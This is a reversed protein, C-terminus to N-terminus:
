SMTEAISERPASPMMASSSVTLEDAPVGDAGLSLMAAVIDQHAPEFFDSPKLDGPLPFAERLLVGLLHREAPVNNPPTM